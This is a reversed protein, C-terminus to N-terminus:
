SRATEYYKRIHSTERYGQASAPQAQRLAPAKRAQNNRVAGLCLAAGGLISITKLFARRQESYQEKM